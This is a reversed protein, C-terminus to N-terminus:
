FELSMGASLSQANDTKKSFIIDSRFTIFPKFTKYHSPEWGINTILGVPNESSEGYNFYGMTGISMNFWGWRRQELIIGLSTFSKGDKLKLRSAELGYKHIKSANLLLRVGAHSLQGSSESNAANMYGYGAQPRVTISTDENVADLYRVTENFQVNDMAHAPTFTTSILLSSLLLFIKM